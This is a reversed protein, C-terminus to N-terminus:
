KLHFIGSILVSPGPYNPLQQGCFPRGTTGILASASKQEEVLQVFDSCTQAADTPLDMDLFNVSIQSGPESVLKYSCTKGPGSQLPYNPSSIEAIMKPPNVKKNHKNHKGKSVTGVHFICCDEGQCCPGEPCSDDVTNAPCYEPATTELIIKFSVTGHNNHLSHFKISVVGDSVM